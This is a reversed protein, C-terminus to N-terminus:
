NATVTCAFDMYVVAAELILDGFSDPQPDIWEIPTVTKGDIVEAVFRPEAMRVVFEREDAPDTGIIYKPVTMALDHQKEIARM